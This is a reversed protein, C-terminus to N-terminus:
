LVNFWRSMLIADEKPAAYYGRRIGDERFGYKRYFSRAAKNSARVELMLRVIRRGGCIKLVQDILRGAVGQRRRSPAVAIRAIEGEDLVCYLIAYGILKTGEWAGLVATDCKLLTERVANESWADSFIEKELAAIGAADSEKADRITWM